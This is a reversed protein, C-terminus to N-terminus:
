TTTRKKLLYHSVLWERGKRYNWLEACSMFFVRWKHFYAKSKPGYARAFHGLVEDKHRDLRALWAEATKAYHEGGVIWHDLIELDKQFYLLLGDSPMMGGTFFERAMWDSQGINEFPYSLFRHTFIHMFFLGDADLWGSIKRLLKEWNRMHEFMEVSVVRDFRRETDFVNMDATVIELNTLKLRERREEIFRRQVASNSVGLIKANPYREAMWLSLSGWGCGLELIRQGDALRAREAYLALMAEEALDLETCGDPWFASSYKLRRGLSLEFFEAPVEYHQENAAGTAIAIPGEKMTAVFKRTRERVAAPDNAQEDILRQALLRRIGLRIVSDPLVGREVVAELSTM